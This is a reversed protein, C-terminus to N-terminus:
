APRRTGPETRRPDAARLRGVGAEVDSRLGALEARLRDARRWALAVAGVLVPVGAAAVIVSVWWGM